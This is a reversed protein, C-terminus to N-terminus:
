ALRISKRPADSDVASGDMAGHVYCEGVFEFEEEAESRLRLVYPTRAGDVLFIRDGKKAGRPVLCVYGKSTVAVRRGFWARAILGRYGRAAMAGELLEDETEAADQKEYLNMAGLWREYLVRISDPAPWDTETRDGILLRMFVDELPAPGSATHPYPDKVIGSSMILDRSAKFVEPHAGVAACSGLDDEAPEPEPRAVEAVVDLEAAGRVVLTEGVVESATDATNAVGGARYNNSTRDTAYGLLVDSRGVSWDPVWSPLGQVRESGDRGYGTGGRALVEFISKQRIVRMAAGLYVEEAGKSYDVETLRGWVGEDDVFGEVCFVVDRADSAKFVGRVVDMVEGFEVKQGVMRKVRWLQMYSANNINRVRAGGIRRWRDEQGVWQLVGAMLANGALAQMGEVFDDWDYGVRGFVLQVESRALAVETAAWVREFWQHQLMEMLPVWWATFRHKAADHYATLKAENTTTTHMTRRFQQVLRFAFVASLTELARDVTSAPVHPLLPPPTIWEPLNMNQPLLLARSTEVLNSGLWVTVLSASSYIRKMLRVQHAKETPSSSDICIADIWILRPLFPSRLDNLLRFINCNIPLLHNNVIISQHPIILNGECEEHRYSIAEFSPASKLEADFLSCFVPQNRHHPHILLLRIRDNDLPLSTYVFRPRDFEHLRQRNVHEGRARLKQYVDGLAELGIATAAKALSMLFFVQLQVWGVTAAMCLAYLFPALVIWVVKMWIPQFFILLDERTHVNTVIWFWVAIAAATRLTGRHSWPGGSKLKWAHRGMLVALFVQGLPWGYGGVVPPPFLCLFILIEKIQETAHRKIRFSRLYLLSSAIRIWRREKDNLKHGNPAEPYPQSGM